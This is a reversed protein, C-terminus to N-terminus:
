GGDRLYIWTFYQGELHVCVVGVFVAPRRRLICLVLTVVEPLAVVAFDWWEVGTVSFGSDWNNLYLVDSVGGGGGFSGPLSSSRAM